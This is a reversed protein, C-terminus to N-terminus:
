KRRVVEFGAMKQLRHCTGMRPVAAIVMTRSVPGIRQTVVDGADLLDFSDVRAAAAANECEPVASENRERPPARRLFIAMKLPVLSRHAIPRMIDGQPKSQAPHHAAGRAPSQASDLGNGAAHFFSLVRCDGGVTGAPRAVVRLGAGATNNARRVPHGM